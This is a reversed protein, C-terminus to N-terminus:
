REVGPVTVSGSDENPDLPLRIEFTTGRALESQFSLTGGHEEVIRRTISLGLGTGDTKTSHFPRFIRQRQEEAIGVGTDSIAILGFAGDRAVRLTMEGGDPMAELANLAINLLARYVRDQDTLCQVPNPSTETTLRVGHARAMPEVFIALRHVITHIDTSVLDLRHPEALHLFEEFLGQLRKAERHLVDVRLLSRRRVDDFHHEENALDETLLKLNIMLTSLPNRLEHALGGVLETIEAVTRHDTPDTSSTSNRNM